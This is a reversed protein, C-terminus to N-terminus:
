RWIMPKVLKFFESDQKPLDSVLGDELATSDPAFRYVEWM